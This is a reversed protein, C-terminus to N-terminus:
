PNIIPLQNWEDNIQDIAAQVQTNFDRLMPCTVTQKCRACMRLDRRLRRLTKILDRSLDVVQGSGKM